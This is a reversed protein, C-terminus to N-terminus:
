HGGLMQARNSGILASRDNPAMAMVLSSAFGSMVEIAGDVETAVASIRALVGDGVEGAFATRLRAIQQARRDQPLYEGLRTWYLLVQQQDAGRAVLVRSPISVARPMSVFLPRSFAISYGFAPYCVEPRHLQLDDSQTEGHAFMAMLAAGSSSQHYIRGITEGYLRAALSGPESAAVLETTDVSVWDRFAKPVIDALRKAGLLSVHRRPTLAFAGGAAAACGAGILVDRRAIM